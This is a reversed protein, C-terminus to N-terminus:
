YKYKHETDMLIKLLCKSFLVDLIDTYQSWFLENNKCNNLQSFYERLYSVQVPILSMTVLKLMFIMCYFTHGDEAKLQVLFSKWYYQRLHTCQTTHVGHHSVTWPISLHTLLIGTCLSAILVFLCVFLCVVNAKTKLNLNSM